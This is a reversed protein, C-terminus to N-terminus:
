RVAVLREKEAVSSVWGDFVQHVPKWSPLAKIKGLWRTINPYAAFDCGVVDGLTVIGSAFYDAITISDGCLYDKKPGIWADNLLQLWRLSKKHGWDIVAAQVADNGRNHHPFLQPYIMNYGYDRYVNSNFWDMVENVHARAKLDKPYEPLDFRDALYKLIASSETLRFDGDELMPVMSNPNMSVYPEQYQAGTMLDVIESTVPLNKEAILLAVPRSATSVPHTYLKM